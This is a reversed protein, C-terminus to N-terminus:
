VEHEQLIAPYMVLKLLWRTGLALRPSVNDAFFLWCFVFCFGKEQTASQAKDQVDRAAVSGADKKVCTTRTLRAPDCECELALLRKGHHRCRSSGKGAIM